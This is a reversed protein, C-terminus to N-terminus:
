FKGDWARRDTNKRTSLKSYVEVGAPNDLDAPSEIDTEYCDEYSDIRWRVFRGYPNLYSRTYEHERKELQEYADESSKAKILVFRKEIQQKKSLVGEEEVVVTMKVCFYRDVLVKEKGLPEAFDISQIWIGAIYNLAAIDKLRSYKLKAIVAQPRKKHDSIEFSEFLDLAILKKCNDRFSKNIAKIREKPKLDIYLDEEPYQLVIKVVAFRKNNSVKKDLAWDKLAHIEAM